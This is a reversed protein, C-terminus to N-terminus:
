PAESFSRMSNAPHRAEAAQRHTEADKIQRVHKEIKAPDNIVALLNLLGDSVSGAGGMMM